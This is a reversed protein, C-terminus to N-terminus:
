SRRQWARENCKEPGLQLMTTSVFDWTSTRSPMIDQHDFLRLRTECRMLASPRALKLWGAVHCALVGRRLVASTCLCLNTTNPQRRSTTTMLCQSLGLSESWMCEIGQVKYWHDPGHVLEVQEFTVEKEKIHKMRAILGQDKLRTFIRKIRMPEEPHVNAVDVDDPTPLYGDSCHLMMDTNYVYGTRTIRSQPQPQRDPQLETDDDNQIIFLVGDHTSSSGTPGNSHSSNAVQSAIPPQTSELPTSTVIDLGVVAQSLSTVSNHSESNEIGSASTEGAVQPTSLDIDMANPDVM